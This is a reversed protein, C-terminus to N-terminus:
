YKRVSSIAASVKLKAGFNEWFPPNGAEFKTNKSFIQGVLVNELMNFNLPRAIAGKARRIRRM